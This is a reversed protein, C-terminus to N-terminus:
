SRLEWEGATIRNVLCNVILLSDILFALLWYLSNYHMSTGHVLIGPVQIDFGNPQLNNVAKPGYLHNYEFSRM